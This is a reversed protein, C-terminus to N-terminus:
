NKLRNWTMKNKSCQMVEALRPTQFKSQFHIKNIKNPTIIVTVNKKTTHQIHM